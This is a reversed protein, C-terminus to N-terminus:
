FPSFFAKLPVWRGFTELYLWVEMCSWRGYVAALGFCWFKGALAKSTFELLRGGGTLSRSWKKPRITLSKGNNKVEQLPGSSM